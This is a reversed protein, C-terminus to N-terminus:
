FKLGRWKAGELRGPEIVPEPEGNHAANPYTMSLARRVSHLFLEDRAKFRKKPRKRLM